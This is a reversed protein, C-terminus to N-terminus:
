KAKSDMKINMIELAKALAIHGSIKRITKDSDVVVVAPVQKIGFQKFLNPNIDVNIRAKQIKARTISFRNRSHKDGALGNMVLKAGYCNAENFYSRLSADNMSFSVFVYIGPEIQIKDRASAGSISPAALMILALIIIALITYIVKKTM